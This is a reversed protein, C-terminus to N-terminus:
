QCVVLVQEPCQSGRRGGKGEIRRRFVVLGPWRWDVNCLVLLNSLRSIEIQFCNCSCAFRWNAIRQSVCHRGAPRACGHAFSSMESRLAGLHPEGLSFLSPLFTKTPTPYLSCARYWANSVLSSNIYVIAYPMPHFIPRLTHTDQYEANRPNVLKQVRRTHLSCMPFARGAFSGQWTFAHHQM